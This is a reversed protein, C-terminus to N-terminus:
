HHLVRSIILLGLEDIIAVAVMHIQHVLMHLYDNTEM